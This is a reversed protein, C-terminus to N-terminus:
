HSPCEGSPAQTTSEDIVMVEHAVRTKTQTIRKQQNYTYPYDNANVWMNYYLEVGSVRKYCMKCGVKESYTCPVINTGLIHSAISITIGREGYWKSNNMLVYLQKLQPDHRYVMTASHCMGGHKLLIKLCLELPLETGIMNQSVERLALIHDNLM